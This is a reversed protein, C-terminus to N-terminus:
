IKELKIGYCDFSSYYNESTSSAYSFVQISGVGFEKIARSECEKDAKEKNEWWAPTAAFVNDYSIEEEPANWYNDWKDLYYETPTWLFAALIIVAVFAVALIIGGIVGDTKTLEEENKM